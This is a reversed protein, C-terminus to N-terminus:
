QVLDSCRFNTCLHVGIFRLHPVSVEGGFPTKIPTKGLVKGALVVRTGRATFLNGPVGSVLIRDNFSARDSTLMESFEMQVAITKGEYIFPNAELARSDIFQGVGNKKVFANYRARAENKANIEAERRSNEAQQNRAENREKLLAQYLEKQPNLFDKAAKTPNEYLGWEKREYVAHIQRLEPVIRYKSLMVESQHKKYYVAVKINSVGNKRQCSALAFERAMYLIRTHIKEAWLAFGDKVFVLVLPWEGESDCHRIEFHVDSPSIKGAEKGAVMSLGNKGTVPRTEAPIGDAYWVIEGVGEANGDVCGGSWTVTENPQPNPNFVLCGKTSDEFWIPEAAYLQFSLQSFIAFCCFMLLRM